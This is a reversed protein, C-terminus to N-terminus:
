KIVGLAKKFAAREINIYIELDQINKKIRKIPSFLM